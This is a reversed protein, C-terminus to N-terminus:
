LVWCIEQVTTENFMEDSCVGSCELQFNYKVYNSTVDAWLFNAILWEEKKKKSIM